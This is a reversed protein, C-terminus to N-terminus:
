GQVARIAARCIALTVQVASAKSNGLTCWWGNTWRLTTEERLHEIVEWAASIYGSFDKAYWICVDNKDYEQGCYWNGGDSYIVRLHFREHVIDPKEEGMIDVAIWENLCANAPHEDIHTNCHQCNM